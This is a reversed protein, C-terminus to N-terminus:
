EKGSGPGSGRGNGPKDGNEDRFPIQSADDYKKRSGPRLTWLVLGVFLLMLWLGWYGRLFGASEQFFEM